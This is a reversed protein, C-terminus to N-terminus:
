EEGIVSIKVGAAGAASTLSIRMYLATGIDDSGFEDTITAGAAALLTDTLVTWWNTGDLSVQVASATIANAGANYVTISLHSFRDIRAYNNTASATQAPFVVQLVGAALTVTTIPYRRMRLSKM